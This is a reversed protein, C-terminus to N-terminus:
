KKGFFTKLFNIFWSGHSNLEEIILIQLMLHYHFLFHFWNYVFLLFCKYCIDNYNHKIKKKKIPPYWFSYSQFENRCSSNPVLNEMEKFLFIISFKSFRIICNSLYGNTAIIILTVGYLFSEQPYGFFFLSLFSYSIM